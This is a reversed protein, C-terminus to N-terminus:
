LDNPQYRRLLRGGAALRVDVSNSIQHPNTDRVVAKAISSGAPFVM